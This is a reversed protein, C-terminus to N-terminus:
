WNHQVIWTKMTELDKDEYQVRFIKTFNALTQFKEKIKDYIKAFIHNACPVVKKSNKLTVVFKEDEKSM